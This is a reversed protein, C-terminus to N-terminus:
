SVVDNTAVWANDYRVALIGDDTDFWLDGEKAGAPPTASVSTVSLNSLLGGDGSFFAASATGTISVDGTTSVDGTIQVENDETSDIKIRETGNSIVFVAPDIISVVSDSDTIANSSLGEFTSASITGVVINGSGGGVTITSNAEVEFVGTADLGLGGMFPSVKQSM